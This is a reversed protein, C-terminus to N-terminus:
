VIMAQFYSRSCDTFISSYVLKIATELDALRRVPDPHNNPILYTSYVGAFPQNLSDEFLGSSRVALPKNMVNLYSRLKERLKFPLEAALFASKISDYSENSYIIQNLNNNDIFNDFEDVGIISTKPIGIKLNPILKKFDINEIFNSLFAM